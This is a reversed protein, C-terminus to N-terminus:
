AKSASPKNDSRADIVVVSEENTLDLDRLIKRVRVQDHYTYCIIAKVSKRTKNATEYIEVQKELKRKLSSSKGLKFEILSKDGAGYSVKFDVPGRGNNPERNVDFDTKCWILGFFLQVETEQSFPQGARNIVRFGDQHEVYHKFLKVRELAEEYSTWPKDYFDTKSEIDHLALRLREVLVRRVDAVKENSISEAQDGNDEKIKIYYDILEPYRQLTKWIAEAREKATPRASALSIRFYNNVQARLQADPLAEPLLDFNRIMDTSSIWTEDRTLMDVPTLLVFDGNVAPLYYNRTEWSETKYNFVSRAVSFTRCQANSLHKRAFTQTYELLYGKILNTTFDSISDRGVGRGLLSLKELHSDSSVRESGFDALIDGFSQHLAVAFKEGLAHGKNGFLTFGLWNQKVEKFRYWNKILAPDLHNGSKDKLFRLYELIGEHLEQYEAKESNFLLFPDIFLPLDSAVSIDFAGYRDLVASDLKFYDSFYLEMGQYAIADHETHFHTVSTSRSPTLEIKFLRQQLSQPM